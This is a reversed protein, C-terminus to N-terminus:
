IDNANLWQISFISGARTLLHQFMPILNMMPELLILLLGTTGQDDLIIEEGM